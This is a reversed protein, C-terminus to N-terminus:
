RRRPLRRLWRQRWVPNRPGIGVADAAILALVLMGVLVALVIVVPNDTAPRAAADLLKREAGGAAGLPAQTSHFGKVGGAAGGSREDAVPVAGLPAASSYVLASSAADGSSTACGHSSSRRQLLRLGRRELKGVRRRGIKLYDAVEAVSLAHSAGVGSRLELVLRLRSPLASLCGKLGTVIASILRDEAIGADGAQARHNGV